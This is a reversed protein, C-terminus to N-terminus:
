DSAVLPVYLRGTGLFKEPSIIIEILGLVAQQRYEPDGLRERASLTIVPLSNLTNERDITAQLSTESDYNRNNTLLWIQRQQAFRWIEQDPLNNPLGFDRLRRFEVTLLQDWGTERLGAALFLDDGEIDHDLLITIQM